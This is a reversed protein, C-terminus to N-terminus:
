DAKSGRERGLLLFYGIVVFGLVTGVSYKVELPLTTKSSWFAEVFAAILLMFAIGYVYQVAEKAAQHLSDLRSLHGPALLSFGLKLGAAGSLAIATLEFSSHGIVFSYFPDTFELATLHGAVTGISIGNYILVIITGIGLTLGSAIAKFGIGINNQIYFGFMALDTDAQRERGLREAGPDYM